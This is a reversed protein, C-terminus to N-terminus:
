TGLNDDDIITGIATSPTGISVHDPTSDSTKLSGIFTENEEHVNDDTIDVNVSVCTEGPPFVITENTATYDVGDIYSFLSFRMM